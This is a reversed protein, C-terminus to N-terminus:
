FLRAWRKLQMLGFAPLAYLLVAVLSNVAATPNNTTIGEYIGFGYGIAIVLLFIIVAILRPTLDPHLMALPRYAM